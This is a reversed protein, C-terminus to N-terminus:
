FTYFTRAVVSLWWLNLGVLFVIPAVATVAVRLGRLGPGDTRRTPLLFLVLPLYPIFYRGQVYFITRAGPPDASIAVGFEILWFAVFGIAGVISWTLVRDARGRRALPERPAGDAFLPLVIAAVVASLLWWPQIPANTVITVVEGVIAHLEGPHVWGRYVAEAFQRPHARIWPTSVLSDAGYYIAVRTKTVVALSWAAVIAGAAGITAAGFVLRRRMSGFVSTPVLLALAVLPANVTKCLVLAVLVSAYVVLTRTSAPIGRRGRDVLDLTFAAAVFAVGLSVPDASITGATQIAAPLVGIAFLFPKGRPALRIAWCVLAVYALMQILRAGYFAPVIGGISRGIRYGVLAPVYPLPANIETNGIPTTGNTHLPSSPGCHVTAFQWGWKAPPKMLHIFGLTRYTALCGDIRYDAPADSTRPPVLYGRDITVVRAIHTFEDAGRIVPTVIASATGILIGVIAFWAVWNIGHDSGKPPPLTARTAGDDADGEDPRQATADDTGM